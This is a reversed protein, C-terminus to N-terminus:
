VVQIDQFFSESNMRKINKTEQLLKKVAVAPYLKDKTESRQTCFLDSQDSFVSESDSDDSLGTRRGLKSIRLRRAKAGVEAGAKDVNTKTSHRKLPPAPDEYEMEISLGAHDM